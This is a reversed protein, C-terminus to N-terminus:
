KLVIGWLLYVQCLLTVELVNNGIDMLYLHNTLTSHSEPVQMEAYQGPQKNEKDKPYKQHAVKHQTEQFIFNFTEKNYLEAVSSCFASIFPSGVNETYSFYDKTTAFAVFFDSDLPIKTTVSKSTSQGSNPHSGRCVDFLLLKPYGILDKNEQLSKIFNQIEFNKSDKCIIQDGMKGHSIVVLFFMNYATLDKTELDECIKKIEDLTQDNQVEETKINIIKFMNKLNDVDMKTGEQESDLNNIILALGKEPRDFTYFNM